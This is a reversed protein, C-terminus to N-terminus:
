DTNRNSVDVLNSLAKRAGGDDIAMAAVEVGERLDKVKHM